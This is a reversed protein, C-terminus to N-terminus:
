GEWRVETKALSKFLRDEHSEESRFELPTEEKKLEGSVKLFVEYLKETSVTSLDRKELEGKVKELSKGFLEIRKAKTLFYKEQLAEMAIARLNGIEIGFEKSWAILTPKSTRLKRAIKDFSWGQARLQIFNEKVRLEKM